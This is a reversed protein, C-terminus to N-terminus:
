KRLMTHGGRGWPHCTVVGPSLFWRVVDHGRQIEEDIVVQTISFETKIVTHIKKSTKSVDRPAKALNHCRLYTVSIVDITIDGSTKLFLACASHDFFLVFMEM